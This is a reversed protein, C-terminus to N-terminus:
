GRPPWALTAAITARRLAAATAPAARPRWALHQRLLALDEPTDVDYWPAVRAITHGRARANAEADALAHPSSWRVAGFEFPRRVGVLFFGGDAAPGLVVDARELAVIADRLRTAPLTPLDSGIVLARPARSLGWALAHEMRAGLDGEIQPIVDVGRGELAPRDASSTAFLALEVRELEAVHALTDTLFAEYLAAAGDLGLAPALRTKAHGPRPAKAFVAVAAEVARM